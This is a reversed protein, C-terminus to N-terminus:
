EVQICKKDTEAHTKNLCLRRANLSNWNPAVRQLEAECALYYSYEDHSIKTMSCLSIMNGYHYFINELSKSSDHDSKTWNELKYLDINKPLFFQDNIISDIYM